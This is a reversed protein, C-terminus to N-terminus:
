RQRYRCAAISRRHRQGRGIEHPQRIEQGPRQRDRLHLSGQRGARQLPIEQRPQHDPLAVDERIKKDYTKFAEENFDKIARRFNENELLPDLVKEKLNHVYRDRLDQFLRTQAITLGEVMIEQTLTRSTYERQTEKRFELRQFRTAASGLLRYEIGSLFEERSRWSKGPTPAPRRYHRDRLQHRVPLEPNGARDAGRQLLLAIGEGGAARHLRVDAAPFGPLGPSDSRAGGQPGQHLVQVPGVHQDAQRGQRLDLFVRQLDQDFGQRLDRLRGRNGLRRHHAPPAQRDAAQPGRGLAMEPHPRHLDGNQAAAPERRLLAPIERSRQDVGAHGRLAAEPALFHDGPRLQAAGAASLERRHAPRLRQPLNGGRHQPGHRLPHQHVGRPGPLEPFGRHEEPGRPEHGGAAPLQREGRHGRGQPHGESIINHLEILREANHSKVDMLAYIGNNTKAYQSFLYKVQHSDKLIRNIQKQILPNAIVQQRLPKDGPSFVSIGKAWGATSATPARTCANSSRAPPKEAPLAARRLALQLHHLPPGQLGMRIGKRDGAQIQIPREQVPRRLFGPSLGQPDAARPQRPEPLPDRHYPRRCLRRGDAAGADRERGDCAPAADAEGRSSPQRAPAVTARDGSPRRREDHAGFRRRDFRWVVEYRLGAETDTYAEFKRLLNNLFTSKGCGPPGRFIYIKNQQAGRKLSEVLNVLRNAFLRDAFFPHDVDHVFLATATTTPTIFRNPTM